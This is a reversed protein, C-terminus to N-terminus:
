APTFATMLCPDSKVTFITPRDFFRIYAVFCSDLHFLVTGCIRGLDEGRGERHGRDGCDHWLPIGRLVSPVFRCPASFFLPFWGQDFSLPSDRAHVFAGGLSEPAQSTKVEGEGPARTM